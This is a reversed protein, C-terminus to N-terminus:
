IKLLKKINKSLIIERQEDTLPISMFRKLENTADWMPFDTAFFFREAGLEDIIEKAKEPTIFM